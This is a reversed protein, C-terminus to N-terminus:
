SQQIATKVEGWTRRTGGGEKTTQLFLLMVYSYACIRRKFNYKLETFSRVKKSWMKYVGYETNNYIYLSIPENGTVYLIM